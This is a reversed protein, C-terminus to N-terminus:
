YKSMSKYINVFAVRFTTWTTMTATGIRNTDIRGSRITAITKGAVIVNSRTWSRVDLVAVAGFADFVVFASVFHVVIAMRRQGCADICGAGILTGTTRTVSSVSDFAFTIQIMKDVHLTNFHNSLFRIEFNKNRKKRELCGHTISRALIATSADSRVLARTASTEVTVIALHVHILALSRAVFRRAM